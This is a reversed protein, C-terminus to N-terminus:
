TTQQGHHGHHLGPPRCVFKVMARKARVHDWDGRPCRDPFNVPNITTRKQGPAIKQAVIRKQIKHIGLNQGARLLQQELCKKM